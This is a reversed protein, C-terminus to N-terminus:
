SSIGTANKGHSRNYKLLLLVIISIFLTGAIIYYLTFPKGPKVLDGYYVFAGWYYPSKKVNGITEDELYDLKSQRNSFHPSQTNGYHHYFFSMIESTSLDNIQWLSFLVNKAGAYQFGRAISMAGEGKRLTGIGTECASLVVLQPNLDLSYLENLSLNKDYFDITAPVASAHTSLHLVGHHKANIIFNSKSAEQRMLLKPHMENKIAEAENISYTLTRDTNEFVPFIGLLSTNETPISESIYFFASSNYVINQNKVVFPMKSFSTTQTEESLLTEFPVFNLLGDPILIITKSNSVADFKLSKFLEFAYESFKQIDSNIAKPSDFLHVFGTISEKTKVNLEIRNMQIQHPTVVFQYINYKGYFYTMLVTNDKSLKEQIAEISLGKYDEDLHKSIAENLRKLEISIESLGRNLEHIKSARNEGLQEQILQSTMREQEKLLEYEEILLTDNPHKQLRSKKHFIDKLTSARSDESYQFARLIYSKDEANMYAQYLLDICKESRIKHDTQNIIKTDQSTWGDRLLNWVHFSLDYFNLSSTIETHIEAYLDFIEIFTNEAYLGQKKPLTNGNFNPLLLQLAGDLSEIVKTNQELLMYLKAEQVLLKALQRKPLSEHSFQKSKLKQFLSLASVYDKNQLAIAYSEKDDFPISIDEYGSAIQSDVRITILKQKQAKSIEPHETYDSTLNLVIDHKGITQYLKALNIIGSIQHSSNNNKEAIFIYQKITSEANTFDGTKTYLNGLPKLCSEIIDFDSLESLDNANFRKLADEYTTIAEKLRSNQNLYYGKHCQLFVLALQEDKTNVLTKFQSEKKSLLQLSGNNPNAIFTETAVYIQEELNQSFSISSLLLLSLFLRTKVEQLTKFVKYTNGIGCSLGVLNEFGQLDFGLELYRNNM